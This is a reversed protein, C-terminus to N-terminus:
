EDKIIGGAQKNKLMSNVFLARISHLLSRRGEVTRLVADSVDVRLVTEFEQKCLLEFFRCFEPSTKFLKTVLESLEKNVGEVSTDQPMLSVYYQRCKEENNM